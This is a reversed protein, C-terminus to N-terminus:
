QGQEVNSVILSTNNGGFGFYNLMFHGPTIPLPLQNLEVGLEEAFGNEKNAIGPTGPLWGQDAAGCFLALEALGCAGLTHGIRPKLACLPPLQNFVQRLGAAEAEDNSLSATGHAKVAIIEDANLQASELAQQL